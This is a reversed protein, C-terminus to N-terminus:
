RVTFTATLGMEAYSKGSAEDRGPDVVGYTGLPLDLTLYSSSGPAIAEVGSM